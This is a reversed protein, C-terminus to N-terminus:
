RFLNVNLFRQFIGMMMVIILCFKSVPSCVGAYSYPLGPYGASLGVTGYASIVEFIVKYIDAVEPDSSNMELASIILIM